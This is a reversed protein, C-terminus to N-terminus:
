SFLNKRLLINGSKFRRGKTDTVIVQSKHYRKLSRDHEFFLALDIVLQHTKGAELYLPYIRQGNIGKLVFRRTIWYKKLLLVPSQLDADNKGINRVVMTLKQPRFRRDKTLSVELRSRGKTRPPSPPSQYGTRNRFRFVNRLSGATIILIIAGFLWLLKYGEPGIGTNAAIVIQLFALRTM